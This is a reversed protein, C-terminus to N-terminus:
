TDPLYILVSYQVLISCYMSMVVRYPYIVGFSLVKKRITRHFISLAASAYRIRYVFYPLQNSIITCVSQISWISRLSTGLYSTRIGHITSATIWVISWTTPDVLYTRTPSYFSFLYRYFPLHCYRCYIYMHVQIPGLVLVIAPVTSSHGYM